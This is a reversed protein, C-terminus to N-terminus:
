CDRCDSRLLRDAAGPERAKRRVIENKANAVKAKEKSAEVVAAAGKHRQVANNVGLAVFGVLVATVVRGWFNGVVVSWVMAIM